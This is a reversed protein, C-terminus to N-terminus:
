RNFDNNLWHRKSQKCRPSRYCHFLWLSCFPLPSVIQALLFPFTVCDICLSCYFSIQINFYVNKRPACHFHHKTTFYVDRSHLCLQSTYFHMGRLLPCVVCVIAHEIVVRNPTCLAIIYVHMCPPVIWSKVTQKLNQVVPWWCRANLLTCSHDGMTKQWTDNLWAHGQSEHVTTTYFSVDALMRPCLDPVLSVCPASM